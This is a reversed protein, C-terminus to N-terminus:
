QIEQRARELIENIRRLKEEKSINPTNLITTFESVPKADDPQQYVLTQTSTYGVDSVCKHCSGGILNCSCGVDRGCKSCKAMTIHKVDM